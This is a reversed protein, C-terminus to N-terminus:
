KPGIMKEPRVLKTFEADTLYGGGGAEERLTTGNKHATKAIKACADYGLRENLATVLMLSNEVGKAINDTLFAFDKRKEPVTDGSASNWLVNVMGLEEMARDYIAIGRAGQYTHGVGFVLSAILWLMLPMLAVRSALYRLLHRRRSM